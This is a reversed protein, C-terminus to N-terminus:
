GIWGVDLQYNSPNTPYSVNCNHCISQYFYQKIHSNYCPEGTPQLISVIRKAYCKPCLLVKVEADNIVQKNSYVFAGSELQDFVYGETQTKFDEVEAIKAKLTVTEEQYSRALEILSMCERQVSTLKSVLDSVAANVESETKADSIVKALSATEKIAAMAASFEAIM